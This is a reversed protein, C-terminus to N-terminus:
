ANERLFTILAEAVRQAGAVDLGIIRHDIEFYIVPECEETTIEVTLWYDSFAADPIQTRNAM